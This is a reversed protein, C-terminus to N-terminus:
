VCSLEMIVDGYSLLQGNEAHIKVVVADKPSKIENILKMAEVVCLVDGAKVRKGEEVFPRANPEPAKYYIGVLPSTIELVDTNKETTRLAKTGKNASEADPASYSVEHQPATPLEREMELSFDGSSLRIRSLTSRNFNEMLSLIESIEM